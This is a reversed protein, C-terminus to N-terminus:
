AYIFFKVFYIILFIDILIKCLKQVWEVNKDKLEENAYKNRLLTIKDKAANNLKVISEYTM